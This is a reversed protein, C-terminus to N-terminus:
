EFTVDASKISAGADNANTIKKGLLEYNKIKVGTISGGTSSDIRMNPKKGGRVYLGDITVDSISGREKVSTWSSAGGIQSGTLNTIDVVLNWGDGQGTQCDDIYINTFKVSTIKANDGNHISVPAKHNAHIVYMNNFTINNITPNPNNFKNTEFGIEMCQALDAWLVCNEATIDHSLGRSNGYNKIVIADDWSRVFCNKITVNNSSQLSIGDSNPRASIIKVNDFTVDTSNQIQCIWANGDLLTVGSINVNSANYTEIQLYVESHPQLHFNDFTSGDVVGRGAVRGGSKIVVCGRLTAGPALYLTNRVQKYDQQKLGEVYTVDGSPKDEYANAFVLVAKTGDGNPEVSFQGPKDITFTVTKGSVTSKVGKDTPRVVANSVNDPFTVSVTVAGNRFDFMGVPVTDTKPKFNNVWSHTNNCTTKYMNIAKGNVTMSYGDPKSLGAQEPYAIVEGNGTTPETTTPKTTPTPNPNVGDIVSVRQFYTNNSTDTEKINGDTNVAARLKHSGFFPHWYDTSTVTKQKGAEITGNYKVTQITKGDASFVVTPNVADSSGNNRVIAYINVYDDDYITSSKASVSSVILDVDGSEDAAYVYFLSFCTALVAVATLGSLKKLLMNLKM